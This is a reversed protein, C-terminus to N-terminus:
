QQNQRENILVFPIWALVTFLLCIAATIMAGISGGTALLASLIGPTVWPVAAIVPGAFGIATMIYGFTVTIIPVLIWPIIYIPNLVIPMGFILPENVNFVGPGVGLKAIARTDERKGVIFMAVLLGLTGGSGGMMAYIDFSGRVWMYTPELGAAVDTMNQVQAVGWLSEYIPTLVLMGHLGFFWLVQTIITVLIVAFMGQSLDLLPKQIIQSILDNVPMGAIESIIFSAAATGFIAVVGPIIAAFSKSVAPPVSDPMKITIGRKTLVIYIEMFILIAIIATFLGGSGLYSYAVGSVPDTLGEVMFSRPVTAMFVAIGIIGAPLPDVGSNAALNYAFSFAFVLAMLSLTAGSINQMVTTFPTMAESFATIEGGNFATPIDNVLVSFLVAFSGALTLPLMAIFGDKISALHRQAAFKGAIPVLHKEIIAVFKDM